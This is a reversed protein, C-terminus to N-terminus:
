RRRAQKRDEIRVMWMCLGYIGLLVMAFVFMYLPLKEM